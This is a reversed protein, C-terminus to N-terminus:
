PLDKPAQIRLGQGLVGLPSQLIEEPEEPMGYFGFGLSQYHAKEKEFDEPKQILKAYLLKELEGLTYPTIVDTQKLTLYTTKNKCGRRLDFKICGLRLLGWTKRSPKKSKVWYFVGPKRALSIVQSLTGPTIAVKQTNKILQPLTIQADKIHYKTKIRTYLGMRRLRRRILTRLSKKKQRTLGDAYDYKVYKGLRTSMEYTLLFEKLQSGRIADVYKHRSKPFNLQIARIASEKNLFFRPLLRVKLLNKFDVVYYYADRVPYDKSTVM